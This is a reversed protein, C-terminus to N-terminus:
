NINVALDVANKSSGPKSVVINQFQSSVNSLEFHSIVHVEHGADDLARLIPEFFVFHSEGHHPFIGLIRASDMPVVCAMSMVLVLSCWTPNLMQPSILSYNIYALM